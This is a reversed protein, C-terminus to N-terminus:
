ISYSDDQKEAYEPGVRLQEKAAELLCLHGPFILHTTIFEVDFWGAEEIDDGPTPAGSSYKVGFLSTMLKDEESRYRWDDIRYSGWYDFGKIGSFSTMGTEEQMERAAAHELSEDSPDVFGGPFRWVSEGPKKGLLIEVKRPLIGSFDWMANKPGSERWMCIDVTQYSVPFRSYASYIAGARFDANQEHVKSVHEREATASVYIDSELNETIHKGSYHNLFSDRSGFLCITHTSEVVSSISEDLQNSWQNDDFCDMIPYVEVDPFSELISARRSSFDLPNRRTSKTRAVGLYIVVKDCRNIVRDILAKHQSHLSHIQFRGVIIGTDFRKNIDM